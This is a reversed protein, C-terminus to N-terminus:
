DCGDEFELEFGLNIYYDALMPLRLTPLGTEQEIQDLLAQLQETTQSMLVFWLNFRNEREYNHNVEPYRNIIAAVDTLRDPPVAMAVLSSVGITNPKIVLGIRNIFQERNLQEFADIVDQETVGLQEAITLFPRPTLPFDQQFNNLLQKQLGSFM